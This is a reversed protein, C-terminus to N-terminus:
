TVIGRINIKKNQQTESREYGYSKIRSVENVLTKLEKGVVQLGLLIEKHELHDRGIFESVSGKMDTLSQAQQGMAEAIKNQSVIFPSGFRCILKYVVVILLIAIAVSGGLDALIKLLEIDM